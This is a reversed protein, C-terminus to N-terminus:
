FIPMNLTHSFVLSSNPQGSAEELRVLFVEGMEKWRHLHASHPGAPLSLLM